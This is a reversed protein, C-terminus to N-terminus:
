FSNIYYPLTAFMQLNMQRFYNVATNESVNSMIIIHIM